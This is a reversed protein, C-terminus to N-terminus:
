WFCLKGQVLVGPYEWPRVHRFAHHYGSDLKGGRSQLIRLLTHLNALDRQRRFFPDRGGGFDWCVESINPCGRLLRLLDASSLLECVSIKRLTAACPSNVIIDVADYHM